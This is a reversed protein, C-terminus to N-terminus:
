ETRPNEGGCTDSRSVSVTRTVAQLLSAIDVFIPWKSIRLSNAFDGVPV